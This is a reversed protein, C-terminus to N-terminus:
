LILGFHMEGIVKTERDDSERNGRECRGSGFGKCGYLVTSHNANAAVLSICVAWIVARTTCALLHTILRTRLDNIDLIKPPYHLLPNALIFAIPYHYARTSSHSPIHHKLLALRRRHAPPLFLRQSKQQEIIYRIKQDKARRPRHSLFFKRYDVFDNYSMCGISAM